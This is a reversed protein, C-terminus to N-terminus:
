PAEVGRLPQGRNRVRRSERAEVRKEGRERAHALREGGRWGAPLAQRGGLELHRAGSWEAVGILQQWLRAALAAHPVARQETREEGQEEGDERCRGARGPGGANGAAEPAAGPGGGGGRRARAPTGSASTASTM